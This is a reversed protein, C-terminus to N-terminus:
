DFNFIHLRVSFPFVQTGLVVGEVPTARGAEAKHINLDPTRWLGVEIQSKTTKGLEGRGTM